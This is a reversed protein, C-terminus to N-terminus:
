GYRFIYPLLYAFEFKEISLQYMLPRACCSKPEHSPTCTRVFQSLGQRSINSNKGLKVKTPSAELGNTMGPAASPPEYNDKPTIRLERGLYDVKELEDRFILFKTKM